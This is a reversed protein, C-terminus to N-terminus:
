QPHDSCWFLFMGWLKFVKQHGTLASNAIKFNSREWFSGDSVKLLVSYRILLLWVWLIRFYLLYIFFLLQDWCCCLSVDKQYRVLPCTNCRQFNSRQRYCVDSVKLLLCHSSSHSNSMLRQQGRAGHVARDSCSMLATAFSSTLFIQHATSSDLGSNHFRM